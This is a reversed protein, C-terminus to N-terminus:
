NADKYADAPVTAGSDDPTPQKVDESPPATGHKESRPVDEELGQKVGAPPLDTRVAPDTAARERWHAAVRDMAAALQRKEREAEAQKKKAADGGDGGMRGGGTNGGSGGPIGPTGEASDSGGQQNDRALLEGSSKGGATFQGPFGTQAVETSPSEEGGTCAVLLCGAVLVSRGGLRRRTSSRAISSM